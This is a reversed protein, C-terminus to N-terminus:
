GGLKGAIFALLGTVMCARVIRKVTRANERSYDRLLLICSAILGIDALIVIPLYWVSVERLAWPFISIVVAVVYFFAATVAATRSGYLVAVTKVSQLKDGEVDVIGKAVERGITSFFAMLTFLVLILSLGSEVAFGGYVFPLAVCISVILNGFMGTSKGMMAYYMSLFWAIIVIALCQINTLFATLFGIASLVFVYSLAEKPKIVGSPIPRSPENVSDINRDYYDNVANAAALFTFGTIFGLLTTKGDLLFTQAAVIIGVLVAVGMVICNIPRILQIIGTIKEM